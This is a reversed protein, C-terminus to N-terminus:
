GATIRMTHAHNPRRLRDPYHPSALPSFRHIFTMEWTPGPSVLASHRRSHGDMKLNTASSSPRGAIEPAGSLSRLEDGHARLIALADQM